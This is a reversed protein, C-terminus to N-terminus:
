KLKREDVLELFRPDRRLEAMDPSGGIDMIAALSADKLLSLAEERRGLAEYTLVAMRRVQEDVAPLALAQSIEYEAEQRKGLRALLYAACSRDEAAQPNRLVEQRARELAKRYAKRAQAPQHNRRYSDAVNMWPLYSDPTLAAAREYYPIAEADRGQRDLAVGLTILAYVYNPDLELARRAEAEGERYRGLEVYAVALEFHSNPWGPILEVVKRFQEAAQEYQAANRYFAGLQEYPRYYGPQVEIAKLHAALAEEDQGLWHHARALRQYADSDNPNLEVARRFDQVARAYQGADLWILGATQRVSGLDPNLAEARRLSEKALDLSRSERSVAYKRRYAEALAAHTLASRPDAKVARELAAISQDLESDHQLHALGATYDGYASSNVTDAVKVPELGLWGTV